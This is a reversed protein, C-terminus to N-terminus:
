AVIGKRRVRREIAATRLEFTMRVERAVNCLKGAHM